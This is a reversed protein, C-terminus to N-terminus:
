RKHVEFYKNWVSTRFKKDVNWLETASKLARTLSKKRGVSRSFIDPSKCTAKGFVVPVLHDDINELECITYRDNNENQEHYFMVKVNGLDTQLYM